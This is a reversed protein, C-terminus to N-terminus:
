FLLGLGGGADDEDTYIEFRDDQLQRTRRREDFPNPPPNFRADMGVPPGMPPRYPVGPSLSPRALGGQGQQMPPFNPTPPMMPPQGVPPMQLPTGPRPPPTPGWQPASQANLANGQRRALAEEFTMPPPPAAQARPPAQFSPRPPPAPLRARQTGAIGGLVDTFINLGLRFLFGVVALTGVGCAALCVVVLPSWNQLDLM